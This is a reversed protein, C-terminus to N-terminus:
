QGSPSAIVGFSVSVFNGTSDKLPMDIKHDFKKDGNTDAYLVAAYQEGGILARLLSMSVNEHTGAAFWGAGLITGWSGDDNMDRVVIWQPEPLEVKHVSLSVGARQNEVVLANTHTNATAENNSSADFPLPPLTIDAIEAKEATKKEVVPGSGEFLSAAGFGIFFSAVAVIILDKNENLRQLM